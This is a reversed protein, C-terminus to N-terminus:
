NSSLVFAQYGASNLDGAVSAAQDHTDYPGVWVRYFNGDSREILEFDSTYGQDRLHNVLEKANDAKAFLGAQVKFAKVGKISTDPPQTTQTDAPQTDAPASPEPPPENKVAPVVATNPELVPPPVVLPPSAINQRSPPASANSSTPQDASAEAPVRYTSVSPPAKIGARSELLKGGFWRGILLSGIFTVIGIVAIKKWNVEPESDSVQRKRYAM